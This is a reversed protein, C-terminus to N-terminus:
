QFLEASALVGSSNQGGVVLVKGNPLLTATHWYRATALSGTATWDGTGGNAAPDYLEASALTDSSTGGGAVLVKGSPLLTATQNARATTLSGTATWDGTGGNAAPDYLDASALQPSNFPAGGAVLVKGTPFLTATHFARVSARSGTTSWAGAGGNAAPDYLEASSSYAVVLVKGTPLLTATHSVYTANATVPSGTTSWAGVGGNAAPDYLEAIAFFGGGHRGGVVLVKGNPLLTATHQYRASALSGTATWAGTGGNAAPDYLEASSNAGAVGSSIGGVVLVKGTPLLTATHWYRGIALSGTTSWAGVGGNAAPDYLEASPLFSSGAGGVVLVKGTPLLTATHLNRGTALSGTASWIGQSPPPPPPPSVLNFTATANQNANMTVTCTGAGSCGGGSWGSFTSDNGPAATLVVSDGGTIPQSTCVTGCNIGWGSSTVTGTGTGQKAVTLTFTSPPPPTPLFGLLAQRVDPYTGGEHLDQHNLGDFSKSNSSILPNDGYGGGTHRKFLASVEPVAGDNATPIGASFLALSLLDDVVLGLQANRGGFAIYQNQNNDVENLSKLFPNCSPERCSPIAGDFNDWDLDRAGDTGTLLFWAGSAVFATTTVSPGPAVRSLALLEDARRLVTGHHPTGLTVVGGINAGHNVRASRAVLGGMSHGVVVVPKAGFISALNDALLKGNESIHHTTDYSFSFLQYKDSLARDQDSFFAVLFTAWTNKYAEDKCEPPLPQWGHVLILPVRTDRPNLIVPNLFSPAIAGVVQYTKGYTKGFIPDSPDSRCLAQTAGAELRIYAFENVREALKWSENGVWVVAKGSQNLAYKGYGYITKTGNTVAV